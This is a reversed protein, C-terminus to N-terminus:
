SLYHSLKIQADVITPHHRLHPFRAMMARFFMIKFTMDFRNVYEGIGMLTEETVKGQLYSITIYMLNMDGPVALGSPDALIAEIDPMADGILTFRIFEAVGTAGITGNYLAAKGDMEYESSGDEHQIQRFTKGKILRNMFGWTRPCRFTKDTHDPRFDMLKDQYRNLYAIIRYDYDQAIAVDELWEKFVVQLELWILRSQLATGMENVVARDEMRNGAAVIACLPHLAHQGIKHDLLPKYAAAQVDEKGSSFEDLFLMFGRKGEPVKRTALPFIDAFPAFYANGDKDFRPLGNFDEPASTSVRHDTMDLLAEDAISAVISSKGSGPPGEIMPVLGAELCDITLERLKRPGVRYINDSM